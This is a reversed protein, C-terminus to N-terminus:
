ISEQKAVLEQMHNSIETLRDAIVKREHTKTDYDVYIRREDLTANRGVVSFNVLNTLDEISKGTRIPFSPSEELKDKLWTRAVIPCHGNVTLFIKPDHGYVVEM